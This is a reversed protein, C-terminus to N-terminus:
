GGALGSGALESQKTPRGPLQWEAIQDETVAIRTFTLATNPAFQRLDRELVRDIDRGSPDHDGLYYVTVPEDCHEGTQWTEAATHTFSVSSYGHVSMLPVDWERTVPDIVGALADKELWVEVRGLAPVLTRRYGAAWWTVADELGDYTMAERAWRTSDVIWAWPLSGERRMQVLLRGVKDYGAETKPIM